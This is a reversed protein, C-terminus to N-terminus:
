KLEKRRRLQGCSMEINLFAHRIRVATLDPRGHKMPAVVYTKKPMTLIQNICQSDWVMVYEDRGVDFMPESVEKRRAGALGSILVLVVLPLLKKM